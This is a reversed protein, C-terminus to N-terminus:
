LDWTDCVPKVPTGTVIFDRPHRTHDPAKVIRLQDKALMDKILAKVDPLGNATELDSGIAEAVAKGVWNSARVDARWRGSDVAVQVRARIEDGTALAVLAPDPPTWREIVGVKDGGEPGGNALNVSVLRYWDAKEFPARNSKDNSVALYGRCDEPSIGAKKADESAMRNIVLVIRAANTLASAGRSADADVQQGSLKRSHHVLFVACGVDRAIAAWRKAIADIQGNDNEDAGHSSVFPDIIVVDIAKAKLEAILAANVDDDILLGNPGKFATRLSSGADNVFLRGDYDGNEFGHHLACAALQRSLEDGDDELNWLWVRKPGYWLTKGLIERGTALSLAVAVMLASKGTGGPAIALTLTRRMLWRGLLWPRPPIGAVEPVIFPKATITTNAPARSPATAESGEPLRAAHSQPNVWGAAQAAAFVAPYNTNQPNLGDWRAADQPVYKASKASWDLWLSRGTDGLPKLAHGM